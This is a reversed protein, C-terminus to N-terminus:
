VWGSLWAKTSLATLAPARRITAGGAVGGNSQMLLLPATVHEDLLRKELRSVYTSVGPMVVANFVTALSREYERVVPLVDSSATVAVGPLRARLIDAVTREHAPNAFSHLLCIAVAEVGLKRCQAAAADVSAEDLPELVVGGAGIREKVELVRSAPVPRPPAKGGDLADLAAQYEGMTFFASTILRAEKSVARFPIFSDEATCLGLMM